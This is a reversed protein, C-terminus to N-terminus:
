FQFGYVKQIACNGDLDALTPYLGEVPNWPSTSNERYYVNITWYTRHMPAINTILTSSNPQVDITRTAYSTDYTTVRIPNPYLNWVTMSYSACINPNAGWGGKWRIGTTQASIDWLLPIFLDDGGPRNLTCPTVGGNSNDTQNVGYSYLVAGFGHCRRYIYPNGWADTIAPTYTAPPATPFAAYIQGKLVDLRDRTRQILQPAIRMTNVRRAEDSSSPSWTDSTWVRDATVSEKSRDRGGSLILAVDGESPSVGSDFTYNIRWPDGIVNRPIDSIYPGQWAPDGADTPAFLQMAAITDNGQPFQGKDQYYRLLADEMRNMKAKMEREKRTQVISVTVPVVAAGLLVVAGVLLLTAVLIEGRKKRLRNTNM